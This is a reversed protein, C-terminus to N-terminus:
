RVRITKSCHRQERKSSVWRKSFAGCGCPRKHLSLHRWTNPKRPQSHSASSSRPATRCRRETSSSSTGVPQGGTKCTELGIPMRMGLCGCTTATNSSFALDGTGKVYRLIRKVSRWHDESPDGCFRSIVEVAQCIDPRTNCLYQLSGVAKRYVDQDCKPEDEKRKLLHCGVDMPTAVPKSDSM